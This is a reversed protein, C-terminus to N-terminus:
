QPPCPKVNWIKAYDQISRDSSFKGMRSVGRVSMEVWRKKDLYAEDVRRQADLYAQFDVSLLYHDGGTTLTEMLPALIKPSLYAGTQLLSFVGELAKDMKIKGYRCGNIYAGRIVYRRGLRLNEVEHAVIGFLFINDQGIEQGIELNAGDFTGLILGGNLVFKMNSTGSAETGATSIHQSIDSAPIM